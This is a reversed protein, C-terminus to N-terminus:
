LQDLQNLATAFELALRDLHRYITKQSVSLQRAIAASPPPSAEALLLNRLQSLKPPLRVRTLQTYIASVGGHARIWAGMPDDRLLSTPQRLLVKVHRADWMISPNHEM